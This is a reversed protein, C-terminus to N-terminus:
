QKSQEDPFWLRSRLMNLANDLAPSPSQEGKVRLWLSSLAPLADPRETLLTNSLEIASKFRQTRAYGEIFPFWESPDDPKYGEKQVEDGLAAVSDWHKLQRQLEAKQFFYPWEHPPEPGLIDLLYGNPPSSSDGIVETPQSLYSINQCLASCRLVEGSHPQDIIRLVGDPSIWAVLAQSASGQFTFWRVRGVLRDGPRYTVNPRAWPVGTLDFIFYNMQGSSQDRKYLSDLVGSTHNGYLSLPLGEALVSTGQKLLPARWALQWFLSKQTLWDQHYARENQIQFASFFLLISSVVVMKSSERKDLLALVCSLLISAPLMFPLTWRDPFSPHGTFAVELNSALFPLEAVVLGVLGLLFGEQLFRRREDAAEVDQALERSTRLRQMVYLGIVIVALIIAVSVIGARSDASVIGPSLPRVLAFVTAMLINHVGVGLRSLTEHIPSKLIPSLDSAVDMYGTRSYNSAVRFLFSRWVFYTVWVVAYPSWRLIAARLAKSKSRRHERQIVIMIVALRFLELGVFYEIILYSLAGSVVAVIGFMWRHAPKTLSLITAAVSVVFCLFSIHYQFLSFAVPQLTFGPYLLVFTGVMWAVDKRRPWLACVAIYSAACTACRLVCALIHWGMPSRGLTPALSSYLWGYVPRLGAFYQTVGDRGFAENVWIVPWDDWYYGLKGVFLGYVLGGIMFLSILAIADPGGFHPRDDSYARAKSQVSM